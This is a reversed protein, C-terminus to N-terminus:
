FNNIIEKDKQFKIFLKFNNIEAHFAKISRFVAWNFLFNNKLWKYFIYHDISPIGIFLKKDTIPIGSRIRKILKCATLFRLKEVKRKYRNIEKDLIKLEDIYNNM